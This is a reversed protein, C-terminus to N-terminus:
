YVYKSIEQAGKKLLVVFDKIDEKNLTAKVAAVAICSTVKGKGNYVPVGIGMAGILNEEDSIAYGQERIKKYENMLQEKDTITYLTRKELVTNKVIQELEELPEYFAMLTKGYAGANIPFYTGYQYTIKVPMNVESEYLNMIKMNDIVTYGVNQKTKLAIEDVIARIQDFNHNRYLYKTGIHYLVPGIRYKKDTKNQVVFMEQELEQLIRYVTTRNINLKESIEIVSYAYDGESFTKMIQLAKNIATSKSEM